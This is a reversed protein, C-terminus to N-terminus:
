SSVFHAYHFTNDCCSCTTLWRKPPSKARRYRRKKLDLNYITSKNSMVACRLPVRTSTQSVNTFQYFSFGLLFVRRGLCSIVRTNTDVSLLTKKTHYVTRVRGTRVHGMSVHGTSVCGTRVHGMSVHGTSVCGTSVHGHECAGHECAGNECAGHECAGNECAGHECTGNECAGNGCMGDESAGPPENDNECAGDKCTGDECAGDKCTGHEYM